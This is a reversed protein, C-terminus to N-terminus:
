LSYPRSYSIESHLSPHNLLHIFPNKDPNYLHLILGVTILSYHSVRYCSVVGQFVNGDELSDSKQIRHNLLLFQWLVTSEIYRTTAYADLLTRQMPFWIGDSCYAIAFKIM